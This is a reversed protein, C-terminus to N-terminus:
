EQASATPNDRHRLSGDQDDTGPMRAKLERGRQALM